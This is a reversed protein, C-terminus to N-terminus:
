DVSPQQIEDAKQQLEDAKKRLKGAVKNRVAMGQKSTAAWTGLGILGASIIGTVIGTNTKM